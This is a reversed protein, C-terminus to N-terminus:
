DNASQGTAIGQRVDEAAQGEERAGAHAIFSDTRTRALKADVIAEESLRKASLFNQKNMAEEAADYKERASKQEAPAANAVAPDHEIQEVAMRAAGLEEKSDERLHPRASCSALGFLMAAVPLLSRYLSCTKRMEIKM